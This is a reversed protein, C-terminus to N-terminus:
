RMWTYLEATFNTQIIDLMEAETMEASQAQAAQAQAM